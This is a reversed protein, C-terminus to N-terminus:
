NLFNRATQNERLVTKLKASLFAVAEDAMAQNWKAPDALLVGLEGRQDRLIGLVLLYGQPIGLASNVAATPIFPQAPPEGTRAPKKWFKWNM